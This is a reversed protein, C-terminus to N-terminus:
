DSREATLASMMLVLQEVIKNGDDAREILFSM